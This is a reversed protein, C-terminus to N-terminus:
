MRPRLAVWTSTASALLEDDPGTLECKMNTKRGQIDEVWATICVEGPVRVPRRFAISLSATVSSADYLANAKALAKNLENITGLTEDMMTATMGGHLLGEYGSLGDGFSFLASVRVIPRAPDRLHHADDPRFFCLMHRLARPANALTSGVFQDHRPSVPNFSQPIFPIVPSESGEAALQRAHDRRSAAPPGNCLLDACWPISRFHQVASDFLHPPTDPPLLNLAPCIVRNLPTLDLGPMTSSNARTPMTEGM